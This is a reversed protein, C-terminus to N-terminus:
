FFRQPIEIVDGPLVLADQDVSKKTVSDGNGRTVMPSGEKARRTYGGAMAVANVITMGHVFSYSGPRQVEGIIYFPRYKLIEISVSPNKLYDPKLASIINNKFAKLSFGSAEIDGILPLSVIGSGDVTFNGSLDKNGFVTVRVQDGPGLRYTDTPSLQEFNKQGGNAESSPFPTVFLIVVLVSWIRFTM